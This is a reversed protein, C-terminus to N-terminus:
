RIDDRVSGHVAEVKRCSSRKYIQALPPLDHVKNGETGNRTPRIPGVAIEIQLDCKSGIRWPIRYINHAQPRLKGIEEPSCDIEDFLFRDAM